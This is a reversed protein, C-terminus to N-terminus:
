AAAACSCTRLSYTVTSGSRRGRGTERELAREWARSAAAVDIEGHLRLLAARTASDHAALPQARSQAAPAGTTDIRQLAALFAAVDRALAVTGRRPTEGELWQYVAWSYPYGESPGGRAVVVPVQVPLHSSLRPLWEAEKDIQEIAWAPVEARLRPLRVCLEGGLRFLVNDTGYSPFRELPLGAWQPVQEALLRRVVQLDIEVEDPHVRPM